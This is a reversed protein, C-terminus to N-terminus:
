AIVLDRESVELRTHHGSPLFGLTAAEDLSVPASGLVARPSLGVIVRSMVAPSVSIRQNMGILNVIFNGTVHRYYRITM